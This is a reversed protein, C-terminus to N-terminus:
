TQARAWRDSVEREFVKSGPDLLERPARYDRLPSLRERTRRCGKLSGAGVNVCSQARKQYLNSYDLINGNITAHGASTAHAALAQAIMAAMVSVVAGVRYSVM